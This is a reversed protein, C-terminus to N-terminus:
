LMVSLRSTPSRLGSSESPPQILGMTNGPRATSM